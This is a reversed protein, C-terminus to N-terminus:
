LVKRSAKRDARSTAHFGSKIANVSRKVSCVNCELFVLRTVSDKSLTTNPSHCMSCAVYNQIYIKLLSEIQKSTYKGRIILQQTADLSAESGM